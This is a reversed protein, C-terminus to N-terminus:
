TECGEEGDNPPTSASSMFSDQTLLDAHQTKEPTLTPKPRKTIRLPSGTVNPQNHNTNPSGNLNSQFMQLLTTLQKSIQNLEAKTALPSNDKVLAQYTQTAIQKGLEQLQNEMTAIRSEFEQRLSTMETQHQKELKKIASSIASQITDEDLTESTTSPTSPSTRTKPKSLAPFAEADPVYSIDLPPRSKWASSRTTKITSADYSDNAVSTAASLFSSYKTTHLQNGYKLPRIQPGFPFHHERLLSTISNHVTRYKSAHTSIHYKKTKADYSVRQIDKNGQLARLLTIGKGGPQNEADVPVEMIPINRHNDMFNAQNTLINYYANADERYFALPILNNIKKSTIATDLLSRLLMGYKAPTTVMLATTVIKPKGEVEASIRDKVFNIPIAIGSPGYFLNPIETKWKQQEDDDMKKWADLIWKLFRNNLGPLDPHDPHDDKLFGYTYTKVGDTFGGIHERLYLDHSKLYNNLMRQKMDYLKTSTRLKFGLLVKPYKGEIKDVKFAQKFAESTMEEHDLFPQDNAAYVEFPSGHDVAASMTKVLDRFIAVVPVSGNVEKAGIELRLDYKYELGKEVSSDIDFSTNLNISVTM